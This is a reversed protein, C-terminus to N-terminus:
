AIESLPTLGSIVCTACVREIVISLIPGSAVGVGEGVAVGVDVVLLVSVVKVFENPTTMPKITAKVMMNQNLRIIQVNRSIRERVCSRKDCIRAVRRTVTKKM